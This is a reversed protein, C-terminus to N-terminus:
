AMIILCSLTFIRFYYPVNTHHPFAHLMPCPAYPPFKSNRIAFQSNVALLLSDSDLLIGTCPALYLTCPSISFLTWIIGQVRYGLWQSSVVEQKSRVGSVQFRFGQKLPVNM